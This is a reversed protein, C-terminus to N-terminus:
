QGTQWKEGAATDRWRKGDPEICTYGNKELFPESSACAQASCVIDKKTLPPPNSNRWKQADDECSSSKSLEVIVKINKHMKNDLSFTADCSCHVVLKEGPLPVVAPPADQPQRAVLPLQAPATLVTKSAPPNTIEAVPAPTAPVEPEFVPPKEARRYDAKGACESGGDACGTGGWEGLSSGAGPFNANHAPTAGLAVPEVPPPTKPGGWLQEIRNGTRIAWECIPSLIYGCAASRSADNFAANLQATSQQEQAPTEEARVSGGLVVLLLAFWVISGPQDIRPKHTM